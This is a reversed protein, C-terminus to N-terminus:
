EGETDPRAPASATSCVSAAARARALRIAYCVASIGFLAATLLLWRDLFPEQTQGTAALYTPRGQEIIGPLFVLLTLASGLAPLRIYNLARVRPRKRRAAPTRLVHDVLSYLPFLVLDHLIIAAAFWVAISQWWVHPNWLAAPKVTAVVFGFLAFGALIVLLHLPKRM